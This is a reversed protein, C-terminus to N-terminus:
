PKRTEEIDLKTTLFKTLLRRLHRTTLTGILGHAKDTYYQVRFDIQAHTLAKVMQATHQYHVNDDGSGHIILYSVNAFQKARSLLSTYNYGYMNDELLGMYRETYATDYYRWDTVPAVAMGVKFVGSNKSLVYTTLYGGYSWGWIALKDKHVYPKTKMYRGANITDVAEYEGLKLYVAHKFREGRRKQGRGDIRVVIIDFTSVLYENWRFGFYEYVRQYGPGGYVDFLVGYKKSPDFDPPLIEIGDITYGDSTFNFNRKIPVMLSKMREILRENSRLIEVTNTVTNHRSVIPVGPGSCTLIYWTANHSFSASFYKCRGSKAWDLNCSLCTKEGSKVDISYIHLNRASTESSSFYVIEQEKNFAFIKDIEWLGSTLNNITGNEKTNVKALHIYKGHNGQEFPHPTLYYSGVKSFWPSPQLYTSTDVWGNKVEQRRNQYGTGTDVDHITMVSVNQVRNSWGVLVKDNNLWAMNTFYHDVNALDSPPSLPTTKPTVSTNQPLKNLDVVKVKVKPNAHGPKPYAIKLVKTYGDTFPGYEIYSFWKVDTDDFEVYGLYSDDPSFWMAHKSYYVDEEYVWDSIGNFIKHKEGTDTITRTQNKVEPKYYINNNQVFALSNGKNGWKALQIQQTEDPPDIEVQQKTDINYAVYDATFSKRYLKKYNCALLVWQEDPSLWYPSASLNQMVTSPVVLRTTNTSLDTVSVNNAQSFIFKSDSIWRVSAYRPSYKYDFLNDFQFRQRKSSSTPSPSPQPEKTSRRWTLVVTLLVVCVTLVVLLFIIALITRRVNTVAM